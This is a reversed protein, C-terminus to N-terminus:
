GYLDNDTTQDTATMCYPKMVMKTAANGRAGNNARRLLM